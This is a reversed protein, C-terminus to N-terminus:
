AGYGVAVGAAGGWGRLAGVWSCWVVTGLGVGALGSWWSGKAGSVVEEVGGLCVLKDGVLVGAQAARKGGLSPTLYEWKVDIGGLVVVDDYFRTKGTEGRYIAGGAVVLRQGDSGYCGNQTARRM